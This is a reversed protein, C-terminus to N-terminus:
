ITIDLDFQWNPRLPILELMLWGTRKVLRRKEKSRERLVKLFLKRLKMRVFNKILTMGVVLRSEVGCDIKPRFLFRLRSFRNENKTKRRRDRPTGLKM